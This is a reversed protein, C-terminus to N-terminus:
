KKSGSGAASSTPSSPLGAARAMLAETLTSVRPIVRKIFFDFNIEIVAGALAVLEELSLQDLTDRHIRAGIAVAAIAQEMNGILLEAVDLDDGSAMIQQVLPEIARSFAPLEKVRIPSVDVHGISLTVPITRPEIADFANQEPKQPNRQVHNQSPPQSM